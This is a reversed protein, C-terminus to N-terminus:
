LGYFTRREGKLGFRMVDGGPRTYEAFTKGARRFVVPVCEGTESSVIVETEAEAPILADLRAHLEEVEREVRVAATYSAEPSHQIRRVSALVAAAALIDALEVLMTAYDTGTCQSAVVRLGTVCGRTVPTEPRPSTSTTCVAALAHVPALRLVGVRLARRLVGNAAGAARAVANRILGDQDHWPAAIVDSYPPLPARYPRARLSEAPVYFLTSSTSM